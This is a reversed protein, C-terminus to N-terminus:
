WNPNQTLQPNLERETQPIPWLYDRDKNFVKLFGSLAIKQLAGNSDTYTMGYIIGPIVNEAIRWRRIDFYRLGEFALEVLREHRVINQMDNQPSITNILPMNVDPRKRVQNIADLVSQDIQNQEIKAEAYTLLVEPYRLFIINIGSNSPDTMDEKNVYKKVNFGTATSNEAYGIADGTGSAPKSNYIKGNPLTDGLVYISYRLRPDRSAYPDKSNFGSEADQINKGNKMQYADVAINTPVFSNVQPFVSNPTTLSFINNSAINKIYERDFIVEQNNEAAYSFLQKYSPYLSYVNLDMVEKAAAAAEPYRKAYLMARAKIALAAGKTIRGKEVQVTPLVLAADSLEKSIFDWVEAIPTRTLKRADDLSTETTLLPVDGYLVVLRIYFFARLVRVEGKLRDILQQDTTKVQDVKDLFINAAQIGTYASNWSALAKGVTADYSNKEILSEERWMLTVHGIDSMADWNTFDGANELNTYVANSGLIADDNTKWYIETSVRDNPLSKLLDKKCGLFCIALLIVIMSKYKKM